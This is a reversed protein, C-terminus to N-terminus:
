ILGKEEAKAELAKLKEAVRGVKKKLQKRKEERSFEKGRQKVDTLTLKGGDQILKAAIKQENAKNIAKSLDHDDLAENRFNNKPLQTPAGKKVVQDRKIQKQFKASNKNIKKVEGPRKTSFKKNGQAMTTRQRRVFHYSSTRV